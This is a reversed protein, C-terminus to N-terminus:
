FKKVAGTKAFYKAMQDGINLGILQFCRNEMIQDLTSNLKDRDTMAKAKALDKEGKKVMYDNRKENVDKLKAEAEDRTKYPGGLKTMVSPAWQTKNIKKNKIRDDGQIKKDIALDAEVGKIAATWVAKEVKLEEILAEYGASPLLYNRGYKSKLWSTKHVVFYQEEVTGAQIGGGDFGAAFEAQVPLSFVFLYAICILLKLHSLGSIYNYIKM